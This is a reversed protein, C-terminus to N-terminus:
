NRFINLFYLRLKFMTFSDSSKPSINKLFYASPSHYKALDNLGVGNSLVYKYGNDGLIKILDNNGRSHPLSFSEIKKNLRSEILQKSIKIEELMTNRDIETMRFHSRSHSGIEFIDNSLNIIEAWNMFIDFLYEYGNINYSNIVSIRKEEDFTKAEEILNDRETNSLGKKNLMEKYLITWLLSKKELIDTVVFINAPISNQKLFPIANELVDRFGDDFYIITPKVINDTKIKPIDSLKIFTHGRKKLYLIQKEFDERAISVHSYLDGRLLKKNNESNVSHYM